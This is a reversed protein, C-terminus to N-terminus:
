WEGNVVALQDFKTTYSDSLHNRRLNWKKNFEQTAFRVVDGFSEQLEDVAKMVKKEKERDASNFLAMQVCTEPVLDMVIVGTKQYNYGPKYLIDMARMAFKLLEVTSNTPSSIDLTVSHFYQADQKRHVNTQLFVNIKRACSGERRLKQACSSAFTAIAQRVEKRGTILKGFQRSTCINKKKAPNSEWKICPRGKLEQLTRLGVVSMESRVWAEPANIFDAATYFGNQQLKVAHESGIGWIDEVKTFALMENVLPLSTAAFVGGTATSQREENGSGAQQRYGSAQLRRGSTKKAYRNAMKALTKTQAIGITVPIGTRRMVAERIEGALKELNIYKMTSLDGFIEDISYEETDPIFARIVEMVRASMDGYLAYNSSFVKVDHKRILDQMLFAAAGMKIGLAKAEDSRAIACGDNNSLVIVPKNRLSPDFVRECSVYFNNCDILAIM